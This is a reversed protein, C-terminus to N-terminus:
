DQERRRELLLRQIYEVKDQLDQEQPLEVEKAGTKRAHGIKELGSPLLAFLQGQHLIQPTEHLFLVECPERRLLSCGFFEEPKEKHGLLDLVTPGLDAPSGEKSVVESDLDPHHIFLPINEPPKLDMQMEFERQASYGQGDVGSHHDSYIVFLTDEYLGREELEEFFMQLSIDVFSISRFYDRVLPDQVAQFREQDYELPYFDYPTHSTVTIFFAFFPEEAEQLFDLGQLLFDYDNIGFKMEQVPMVTESFSFDEKSYFRDFGLEPYAQDRHFFEKDNGHLALTQYGHEKLIQILSSFRSLDNVKFGYNKNIPYISTLFSFEADFSGNIHQAYFNEFYLSRDKLDNLFPTIEQGNHEQGIIKQDLSEVQIVIINEFEVDRDIIKKRDLGREEEPPKAPEEAQFPKHMSCLEFAYLPLIGYVNVFASTSQNYLQGPRESGLIFNTGLIQLLLVGLVLAINRARHVRPYGSFVLQLRLNLKEKNYIFILALVDVLFLLDQPRMLQRVLVKFPRVGQGLMIDSLSLYNGFYRNYWINALCFFTFVLFLGLLSMRARKNQLLPFVYLVAIATLVLLKIGLGALSPVSYIFFCLYSYKCLFGLLLVLGFCKQYFTLEKFM